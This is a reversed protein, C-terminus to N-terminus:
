QAISHRFEVSIIGLTTEAVTPGTLDYAQILLQPRTEANITNVHGVVGFTLTPDFQVISVRMNENFILAQDAEQVTTIGEVALVDVLPSFNLVEVAMNAPLAPYTGPLLNNYLIVSNSAGVSGGRTVNLAYRLMYPTAEILVPQALVPASM